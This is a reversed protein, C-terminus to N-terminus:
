NKQNYHIYGTIKDVVQEPSINTTDIILDYNSKDSTDLNYYEKYRKKESEERKKMNEKTTNLNVNHEKRITDALIRKARTEFDADLFIKISDSVFHFGLRSDIVFNDQTKGLQIQRNDLEQDISMDTEAEKSLELLSIKREEAMERMFDGNSYHEYNLKRALLKGVTSKGSGSTGSITIKM